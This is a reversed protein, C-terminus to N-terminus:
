LTNIEVRVRADLAATPEDLAVLRPELMLARAIGVRQQEGGSLEGPFRKAYAPSLEVSRLADDVKERRQKASLDTPLMLPEELTPQVRLRPNLSRLPEQFVMQVQKRYARLERGKLAGIDSGDFSIQGQDCDVLRLVCRALTSKGSGSEGVVATTEGAHLDLS